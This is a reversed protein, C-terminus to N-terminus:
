SQTGSGAALATVIIAAIVIGIILLALWVESVKLEKEVTPLNGFGIFKPAYVKAIEHIMKVCTEDMTNLPVRIFKQKGDKNYTIIMQAFRTKPIESLDKKLPSANYNNASIMGGVAGGVAQGIALKAINTFGLGVGVIDQGPITKGKFSIMEKTVDLNVHAFAQKYDFNAM